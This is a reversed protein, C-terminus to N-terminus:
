EFIVTIFMKLESWDEDRSWFSLCDIVLDYIRGCSDYRSCSIFWRSQFKSFRQLDLSAISNSFLNSDATTRYFSLKFLRGRHNISNSHKGNWHNFLRRFLFFVNRSFMPFSWPIWIQSVRFPWSWWWYRSFPICLVLFLFLMVIFLAYQNQIVPTQSRNSTILHSLTNIAWNVFLPNIM